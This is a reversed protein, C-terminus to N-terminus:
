KKDLNLLYSYGVIFDRFNFNQGCAQDLDPINTSRILQMGEVKLRLSELKEDFYKTDPGYGIFDFLNLNQLKEDFIKM